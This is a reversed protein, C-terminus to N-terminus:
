PALLVERVRKYEELREHDKQTPNAIRSLDMNESNDALKVTRAIPNAAARKAADLRSEGPPLMVRIPHLIYPQGSKDLQGAHAAAAIAIARELTSM